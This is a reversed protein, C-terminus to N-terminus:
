CKNYHWRTHFGPEEVQPKHEAIAHPEDRREHGTHGHAKGKGQYCQVGGYLCV